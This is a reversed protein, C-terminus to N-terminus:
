FLVEQGASRTLLKLPRDRFITSNARALPDELEEANLARSPFFGLSARGVHAFRSNVNRHRKPDNLREVLPVIPKVAERRCPNSGIEEHVFRVAGMLVDCLQIFHSAKPHVPEKAHDSNVFRVRKEICKVTLLREKVRELPYTDFLEDAELNGECDHFCKSLHVEDHSRHAMGVHHALNARYFRRYANKAQEGKGTGFWDQCLKSSDVALISFQWLDSDHTLTHLWRQAVNSKTKARKDIDSWSLEHHYQEAERAEMLKSLATTLQSKPVSVIGMYAWPSQDSPKIEDAFTVIQAVRPLSPDGYLDTAYTIGSSVM